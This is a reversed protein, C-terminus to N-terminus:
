SGDGIESCKSLMILSEKDGSILAKKKAISWGKIQKERKEVETRKNFEETYVCEIDSFKKTYFSQKLKHQKLRTELNDTIGIYFTKKDCFLIYLTWM